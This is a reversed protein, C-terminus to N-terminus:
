GVHDMVDDTIMTLSFSVLFLWYVNDNKLHVVWFV